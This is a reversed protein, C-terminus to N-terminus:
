IFPLKWKSLGCSTMLLQNLSQIRIGLDSTINNIKNKDKEMRELFFIYIYIYIYRSDASAQHYQPEGRAMSFNRPHEGLVGVFPAGLIEMWRAHV